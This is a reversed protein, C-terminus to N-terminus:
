KLIATWVDQDKTYFMESLQEDLFIQLLQGMGEALEADRLENVSCWFVEGEESSQLTGTFRNTKYLLIVQRCDNETWDKIGCLQPSQITLGTEEYVERIVADTFSEGPEVHGGPFTMGPWDDSLRNQVVVRDGDYIMCMNMFVTKVIHKM